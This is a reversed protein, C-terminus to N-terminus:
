RWTRRTPGKWPDPPLSKPRAPKGAKERDLLSRVADLEEPSLNTVPPEAAAESLDPLGLLDDLSVRLVKRLQVLVHLGVPGKKNKLRNYTFNSVGLAKAMARNTRQGKPQEKAFAELELAIADRWSDPTEVERRKAAM